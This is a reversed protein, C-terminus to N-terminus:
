LHKANGCDGDALDGVPKTHQGLAFTWGPKAFSELSANGKGEILAYQAVIFRHGADITFRHAIAPSEPERRAYRILLGGCKSPAVMQRHRSPIDDVKHVATDIYHIRKRRGKSTSVQEM